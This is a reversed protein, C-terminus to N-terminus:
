FESYERYPFPKDTCRVSISGTGKFLLTDQEPPFVGTREIFTLPNGNCSEHYYYGEEVCVWRNLHHVFHANVEGYGNIM